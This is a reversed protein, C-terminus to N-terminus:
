IEEKKEAVPRPSPKRDEILLGQARLESAEHEDVDIEVDPQMTTRVKM